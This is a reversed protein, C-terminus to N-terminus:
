GSKEWLIILALIIIFAITMAINDLTKDKM